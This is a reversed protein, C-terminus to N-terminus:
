WKGWRLRSQNKLLPSPAIFFGSSIKFHKRAPNTNVPKKAAKYTFAKTFGTNGAPLFLNTVTIIGGRVELAV